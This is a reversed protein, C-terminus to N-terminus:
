KNQEMYEVALHVMSRVGTTLATDDILFRDSHNAAAQQPDKDQATVGLFFFLGPVQQQYFSFDASGTTLDNQVVHDKGAVREFVHAMAQTLEPDNRTAAYSTDAGIYVDAKAGSAAAISEATLKVKEHYAARVEPDSTRITGTMVVEDPIINNRDGAHITGISIISPTGLIKIQRSAITQLGLIIQSSVTIPDIGYRPAAAHTQKGTVTIRLFDSSAM